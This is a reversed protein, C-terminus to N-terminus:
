RQSQLESTHEESRASSLAGADIVEADAPAPAKDDAEVRVIHGTRVLVRMNDSVSLDRPDFLKAHRILLDGKPVHTQAKALRASWAQDAEGQAAQLKALVPKAAAELVEFWDDVVGATNGQEDLWVPVPTFDMGSIRYMTLKRKKADVVSPGRELWAEGAPLLALRQGKAKLLARALVGMFEPPANAPLYFAPAWDVSGSEVRNKWTAKGDAVKFSETIPVKWYDNGQMEYSLPLGAKDLTWRAHLQDGRGRESFGYDAVTEGAKPTSLVQKGVVVGHIQVLDERAHASMAALLAAAVLFKSKTM